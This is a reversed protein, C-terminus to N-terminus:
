HTESATEPEPDLPRAHKLVRYVLFLEQGARRLSKLRLRIAQSVESIGEGDALTPADRGGFVLPCVKLNIEDVVNQRLLGSNVEGGGECLLRRVDWKTRLWRLAEVFDVNHEGCILVEDAVQRLAKVRERRARAAALVIIPSFRHRFIEARPDLTAGGSVVVRLNYEPLGRRRRLQRYRAPGPGLDVLGLDVTRAGSMVADAQSRLEFLLRQDRRSSFPIFRRTHPALKGDVTAAVNISIFPLPHQMPFGTIGFCRERLPSIALGAQLLSPWASLWSSLNELHESAARM